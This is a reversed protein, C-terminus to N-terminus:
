GLKELHTLIEKNKKDFDLLINDSFRLINQLNRRLISVTDFLNRASTDDKGLVDCRHENRKKRRIKDRHKGQTKQEEELACCFINHLGTSSILGIGHEISERTNVGIDM